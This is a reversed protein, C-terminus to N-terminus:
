EFRLVWLSDKRSIKALESGGDFRIKGLDVSSWRGDTKAEFLIRFSGVFDREHVRSLEGPAIEEPIWVLTDSEGVVSLNRITLDSLNRIQLRETSEWVLHTCAVLSLLLFGLLLRKM